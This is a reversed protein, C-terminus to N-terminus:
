MVTEPEEEEWYRERIIESKVARARPHFDLIRWAPSGWFLEVDGDGVCSVPLDGGRDAGVGSPQKVSDAAGEGVVM